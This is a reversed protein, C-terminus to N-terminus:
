ASRVAKRLRVYIAGGGGHRTGAAGYSLVIQSLDTQALWLPVSRRLVGRQREGVATGLADPRDEARGKGTIVLVTKLGNAYARQLFARLRAHAEAQSLGHLDLRDDIDTKGAVIRRAQRRDLVDIGGAAPPRHAPAAGAARGKPSTEARLKSGRAPSPAREPSAQPPDGAAVRPKGKLPVATRMAQEWLATEDATLRRGSRGARQGAKSM